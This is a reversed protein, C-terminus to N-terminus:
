GKAYRVHVVVALPAHLNSAVAVPYPLAYMSFRM